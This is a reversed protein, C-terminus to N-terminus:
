DKVDYIKNRDRGIIGRTCKGEKGKSHMKLTKKKKEKENEALHQNIFAANTHSTGGLQIVTNASLFSHHLKSLPNSLIIPSHIM